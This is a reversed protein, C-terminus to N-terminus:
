KKGGKKKAPEAEPKIEQQKKEFEAKIKKQVAKEDLGFAEIGVKVRSRDFDWEREGYGYGTETLLLELALGRLEFWELKKLGNKLDVKRRELVEQWAMDSMEGLELIIKVFALWFQKQGAPTLAKNAEVKEVLALGTGFAIEDDLKEKLLKAEKEEPTDALLTSQQAKEGVKYGAAKLGERAETEKYLEQVENSKDVTAFLQVLESKKLLQRYTRRKDDGGWVDDAKVYGSGSNLYSCYSFLKVGDKRPIIKAGRKAADDLRSQVDQSVKVQYCAPDTCVNPSRGKLEPFMELMNGTRKPCKECSGPLMTADKVDFKAHDLNVMFNQEVIYQARRFSMDEEKTIEGLAKEQQKPEPIQAILAAVSKQIKGGLLAQRVPENLRLLALMGFVHSRSKGLKKFLTDVTFDGSDIAEKYAQARELDNLDERQDNEILRIARVDQDTLVEVMCPVEAFKLMKAARLRREGAILEYYPKLNDEGAWLIADGKHKAEVAVKGKADLVTWKKFELDPEHLTYKQAVYRVLLPQKIGNAQLISDALEKLTAENFTKRPNNVTRIQDLPIRKFDAALSAAGTPELVESKM